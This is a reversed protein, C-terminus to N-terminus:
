PFLRAIDNANIQLATNPTTNYRINGVYRSTVASTRHHHGTYRHDVSRM